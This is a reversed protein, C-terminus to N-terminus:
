TENKKRLSRIKELSFVKQISSETTLSRGLVRIYIKQLMHHHHHHKIVPGIQCVFNSMHTEM